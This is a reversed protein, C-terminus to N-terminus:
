YYHYYWCHYCYQSLLSLLLFLINISVIIVITIIIIFISLVCLGHNRIIYNHMTVILGNVLWDWTFCCIFIHSIIIKYLGLDSLYYSILSRGFDDILDSCLLWDYVLLLFMNVWLSRWDYHYCCMIELPLNMPAARPALCAAWCTKWISKNVNVYGTSSFSMIKPVAVHFFCEFM